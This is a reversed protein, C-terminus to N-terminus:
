VPFLSPMILSEYENFKYMLNMSQIANGSAGKIMNDIAGFSVIRKIYNDM